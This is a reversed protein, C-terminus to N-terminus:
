RFLTAKKSNVRYGVSLIADLNYHNTDREVKRKGEKQVILFKRITSTKQLEKTNYINKLHENITPVSINFALAIQAQTAWVTEHTLDERLEIAGSPAQYIVVEKKIQKKKAM